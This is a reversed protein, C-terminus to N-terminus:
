HTVSLWISGLAVTRRGCAAEDELSVDGSRLDAATLQPISLHCGTSLQAWRLQGQGASLCSTPFHQICVHLQAALRYYLGSLAFLLGPLHPTTHQACVVQAALVAPRLPKQDGVDTGCVM